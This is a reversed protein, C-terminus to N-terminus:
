VHTPGNEKGAFRARYARAVAVILEEDSLSAHAVQDALQGRLASALRAALRHAADPDLSARRILFARLMDYERESLGSADLSRAMATAPGLDLAEPAPIARDRVVMTGAALDGLRQARSTFFMSVLPIFPLGYEVIRILNRVMVPAFGAPEGTTRVVRIRQARKGPTQGHNLWELLPFYLWLVVFVVVGIIALTTMGPFQSNAVVIFLPVLVIAQILGDITLAISRSGMGAVDAHLRVAEPTVTGGAPGYVMEAGM